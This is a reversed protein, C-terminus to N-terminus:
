RFIFDIRNDGLGYRVSLLQPAPATNPAHTATLRLQAVRSVPPLVFYGESNSTTRYRSFRHFERPGSAGRVEVVTAVSVNTVNNLFVVEDGPLADRDFQKTFGSPPPLVPGVNGVRVRTTARHTFALPYTLEVTVPQDPTTGGSMVAVEVYEMLEGDDPEVWLVTNAGVGVRDSLRLRNSGAVAEVQLTKDQGAVGTVERRRLTDTGAVRRSYLPPQLHLMNTANGAGTTSDLTPWYDTVEVTAGSLGNTHTGAVIATRGRVGVPLRHMTIDPLTLTAFDDPFTAINPIVAVDRRSLYGAASVTFPVNYSQNKLDPFVNAPIGVLGTLSSSQATRPTLGRYTTAMSAPGDPALGTIEDVLRASLVGWLRRGAPLPADPSYTYPVSGVQITRLSM